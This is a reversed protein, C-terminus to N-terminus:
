DAKSTPFAIKCSNSFRYFQLLITLKKIKPYYPISVINKTIAILIFLNNCCFNKEIIILIIRVPLTEADM